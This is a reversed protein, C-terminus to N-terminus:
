AELIRRLTPILQDRAPNWRALDPHNRVPCVRGHKMRSIPRLATRLEADHERTLNTQAFSDRAQQFREGDGTAVIPLHIEVAGTRALRLPVNRRIATRRFQLEM